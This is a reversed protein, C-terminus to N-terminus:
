EAETKAGFEIRMEFQSITQLQWGAKQFLGSALNEPVVASIALPRGFRAALASLLRSAWRQRRSEPRVVLGRIVIKEAKPDAVIAFAIDHLHFGQAPATAAALTEPMLMWPLDPEGESAILRAVVFPDVEKLDEPNSGDGAAVDPYLEYGVLKRTPRFGLKDYLTLAPRNQEIVELIMARDQRLVAEELAARMVSKGLGRGRFDEAVAMGALRSTWGRRAIMVVAAPVGKHLYVRSAFPDLNEARFRTEYKEPTLQMPVLYGKFCHVIAATVEASTCQAVALSTLPGAAPDSIAVQM